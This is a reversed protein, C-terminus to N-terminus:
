AFYGKLANLSASDSHNGAFLMFPHGTRKATEVVSRWTLKGNYGNGNRFQDQLYGIQKTFGAVRWRSAWLDYSKGDCEYGWAMTGDVLEELTRVSKEFNGDLYHGGPELSVKPVAILPLGVSHAASHFVALSQPSNIWGELDVAVAICGEAKAKAAWQHIGADSMPKQWPAYWPHALRVTAKGDKGSLAYCIGGLGFDNAASAENWIGVLKPDHPWHPEKFAPPQHDDQDPIEPEDPEPDHGPHESNEEHPDHGWLREWWAAIKGGLRSFFRTLKNSM